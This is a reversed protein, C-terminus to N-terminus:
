GRRACLRAREATKGLWAHSCVWTAKIPKLATLSRGAPGDLGTEQGQMHSCLRTLLDLIRLTALATNASLLVADLHPRYGSHRKFSVHMWVSQATHGVVKDMLCKTMECM